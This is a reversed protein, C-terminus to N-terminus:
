FNSINNYLQTIIEKFEDTSLDSKMVNIKNTTIVINDKNYGKDSNIRDISYEKYDEPKIGTYYDKFDQKELQAEIQEPTLTHELIRKRSSAKSKNYLFRAVKSCNAFRKSEKRHIEARYGKDTYIANELILGSVFYVNELFDFFNTNTEEEIKRIIRNVNTNYENGYLRRCMEKKSCSHDIGLERCRLLFNKQTTTIRTDLIFDPCPYPKLIKFRKFYGNVTHDEIWGDEILKKLIEPINKVTIGFNKNIENVSCHSYGNREDYYANVIALLVRTSLEGTM